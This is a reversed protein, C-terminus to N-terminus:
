SRTTPFNKDSMGESACKRCLAPKTEKLPNYGIGIKCKLCATVTRPELLDKRMQKYDIQSTGNKKGDEAGIRGGVIAGALAGLIGFVPVQVAIRIDQQSKKTYASNYVFGFFMGGIGGLVIGVVIYLIFKM